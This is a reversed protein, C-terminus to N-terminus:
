DDAQTTEEAVPDPPSVRPPRLIRFRESDYRFRAEVTAREQEYRGVMRESEAIDARLSEITSPLEPPVAQGSRELEAAEAQRAELQEKTSAINGKLLNISVLIENVKRLGAAEIDEVTSYRGLLALDYRRQRESEEARLRQQVSASDAARRETETLARPVTEIVRGNHDLVAYGKHAFEPPVRDDIVTVGEANQYRYFHSATQASALASLMGLVAMTCVARALRQVPM